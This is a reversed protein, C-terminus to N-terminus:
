ITKGNEKTFLDERTDTSELDLVKEMKFSERTFCHAALTHLEMDMFQAM